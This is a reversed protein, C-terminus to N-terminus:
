RRQQEMQQLAMRQQSIVGLAHETDARRQPDNGLKVLIKYNLGITALAEIFDQMLRKAPKGYYAAWNLAHRRYAADTVMMIESPLIQGTQCYPTLGEVIIHRERMSLFTIAVLWAVGIPFFLLIYILLWVDGFFTATGNWTGHIIVAGVYGVFTIAIRGAWSRLNMVGWAAALGTMSTAMPHVLPSMVARMIILVVLSQHPNEGALMDTGNYPMMFYHINEVFAFAIGSLGGYYIGDMLSHIRTHRFLVLAVVFAGKFAEEVIPASLVAAAADGLEASGTVAQVFFAAGTNFFMSFVVAILAGWSLAAVTTLRSEPEWRDLRRFVFLLLLFPALAAPLIAWAPAHVLGWSLMVLVIIAFVSSIGLVVFEFVDYGKFQSTLRPTQPVYHQYSM